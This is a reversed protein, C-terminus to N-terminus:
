DIISRGYRTRGKGPLKRDFERILANTHIMLSRGVTLILV